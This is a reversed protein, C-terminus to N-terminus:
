LDAVKLWAKGFNKGHFIDLLGQAANDIGETVHDTYIFSGEKLWKGVREQHDKYHKPGLEEDGVIFGRMTIRRQLLWLENISFKTQEKPPLNYQSIAGCIIFRGHLKMNELAWQSTPGGVNDYYIDIGDPAVEKMFEEVKTKKYNFAHTFKLKEKLYQVKEDTGASGIVTLGEHLAIQGVLQGVAGSAATIFITEGKKPKGIEYLSSYATLGPMGLVGLFYHEPLNHPNNLPRIQSLAEKGSIIQYEATNAMGTVVDGEKFRPSNSKIVKSITNNTIPENLPFAPSYSQIKADRMRGRQYPDFSVYHIKILIGEEGLDPNEIDIPRDELVLHKGPEPFGEPIEKFILSKNQVM